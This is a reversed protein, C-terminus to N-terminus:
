EWPTLILKPRTSSKREVLKIEFAVNWFKSIDLVFLVLLDESEVGETDVLWSGSIPSRLVEKFFVSWFTRYRGDTFRLCPRWELHLRIMKQSWSLKVSLRRISWGAFRRERFETLSFHGDPPAGSEPGPAFCCRLRWVSFSKFPEVKVSCAVMRHSINISECSSYRILKGDWPATFIVVSICSTNSCAIISCSQNSTRWSPPNKFLCSVPSSWATVSM